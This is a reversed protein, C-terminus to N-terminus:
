CLTACYFHKNWFKPTAEATMSKMTM